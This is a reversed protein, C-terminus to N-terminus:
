LVRFNSTKGGGTPGVIMLGHRVLITDYLQFIKQIFPDVEQVNYHICSATIAAGLDGYDVAPRELGPFLDRIINEFLPIDDKLFKPM